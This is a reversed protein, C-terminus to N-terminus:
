NCHGCINGRTFAVSAVHIGVNNDVFTAEHSHLLLLMYAGHEPRNKVWQRAWTRRNRKKNRQVKKALYILFFGAVLFTLTEIEDMIRLVHHLINFSKTHVHIGVFVVFAALTQPRKRCINGLPAIEAYMNGM